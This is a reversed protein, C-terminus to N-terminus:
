KGLFSQLKHTADALQHSQVNWIIPDSTGRDHTMALIDGDNFCEFDAYRNGAWFGICVADDTSPEIFSPILKAKALSTLVLQCNQIATPNPTEAGSSDWNKPLKEIAGLIRLADHLWDNSAESEDSLDFVEMTLSQKSKSIARLPTYDILEDGTTTSRAHRRYEVPEMDETCVGISDIM